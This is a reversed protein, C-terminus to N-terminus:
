TRTTPSLTTGAAATTAPWRARGRPCRLRRRPPRARGRRKRRARLPGLTSSRSPISSAHGSSSPRRRLLVKLARRTPPSRPPRRGNSRRPAYRSGSASETPLSSTRLSTSRHCPMSLPRASCAPTRASSRCRGGRRCSWTSKAACTGWRRTGGACRWSGSARRRRTGHAAAAPWAPTTPSTWGAATMRSSPAAAPATAWSSACGTCLGDRPSASARRGRGTSRGHSHRM